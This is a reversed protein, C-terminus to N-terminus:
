RESSLLPLTVSVPRSLAQSNPNAESSALQHVCLACQSQNNVTPQLPFFPLSSVPLMARTDPCCAPVCMSGNNNLCCTVQSKHYVPPLVPLPLVWSVSDDKPHHLMEGSSGGSSHAPPHPPSDAEVVASLKSRLARGLESSALLQRPFRNVCARL